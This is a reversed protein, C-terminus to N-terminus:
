AQPVTGFRTHLAAGLGSVGVVALALQGILPLSGLFAVGAVGLLFALWRRAGVDAMPLRDGFAQCSAIFGLLAAVGLAALLAAALPAGILSITLLLATLAGILSLVVGLVGSRFPHAALTRAVGDVHKPFLGVVMVGAGAFGFIMVLRRALGRLWPPGGSPPPGSAVAARGVDGVYSVRDGDVRGGPLVHVRGGFSVADGVVHAGGRVTVDGGFSVANGVVQGEVVVPAGFAVAENVRQGARVFVPAGGLAVEPAIGGGLISAEPEAHEIAALRSEADAVRQELEAIRSECAEVQPAVLADDDPTQAFVLAGAM